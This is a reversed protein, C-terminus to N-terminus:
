TQDGAGHQGEEDYPSIRLDIITQENGGGVQSETAGPM